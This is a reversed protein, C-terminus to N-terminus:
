NKRIWYQTRGFLSFGLFGRVKLKNKTILKLYCKYSKGNEPDLIFGGNFENGEKKLKEIIVLGIISQNKKNGNCAKCLANEEGIFSKIIKAFYLSNTKYIEIVAKKEKTKDDFTEWQGIITQANTTLSLTIIILISLYKM